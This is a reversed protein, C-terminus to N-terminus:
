RTLMLRRAALQTEAWGLHRYFGLAPPNDLDVLLQARTAGRAAAWDLVHGLLSRGVGRGRWAAAVVVDEVWASWAGEATSFVLQASCMGVVDGEHTAAVAVVGLPSSIVGALGRAQKDHDPAFDQEIAFLAALLAVLAPVDAATAVRLEVGLAM